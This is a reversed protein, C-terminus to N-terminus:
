GSWVLYIHLQYWEGGIFNYNEIFSYFFDSDRNNYICGSRDEKFRVSNFDGMICLPERDAAEVIEGIEIWFILKDEIEHPGYVNILHFFSGLYTTCECWLWHFSEGKKIVSFEQNKWATVLGGSAGDSIVAFWSYFKSDWVNHMMQDSWEQFKSEQLLLINASSERVLSRLNLKAISSNVGRVNWSTIVINDM